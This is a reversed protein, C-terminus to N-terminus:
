CPGQDSRCICSHHPGPNPCQGADCKGSSTAKCSCCDCCRKVRNSCCETWCADCDSAITCCNGTATYHDRRTEVGGDCTQNTDCNGAENCGSDTCLEYGNTCGVTSGCPTRPDYGSAPRAGLASTLGLGAAMGAVSAVQLFRRRSVSRSASATMDLLARDLHSGVRRKVSGGALDWGDPRETLKRPARFGKPAPTRSPRLPSLRSM